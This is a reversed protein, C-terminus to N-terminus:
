ESFRLLDNAYNAPEAKAGCATFYELWFSQLTFFKDTDLNGAAVVYVKVNALDPLRNAKKENELIDRIREQTLKENSFNYAQSDELMDSMVVLISRDHQYSKFIKGALHLAGMLDSKKSKKSFLAEKVTAAIAEKRPILKEEAERIAVKNKLANGTLKLPAFEEKVPIEQEAISSETIKAAVLADGFGVRELIRSFIANYKQRQANNTSGSLDFLVLITKTPEQKDGFQEKLKECACLSGALCVLLTVAKWNM